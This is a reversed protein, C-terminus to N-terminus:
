SLTFRAVSDRTYPALDVPQGRFLLAVGKANGVILTFPADGDVQQDSGAANLRQLLVRGDASRVEVWSAENFHFVLPQSPAAAAPSLAAVESAGPDPTTATAVPGVANTASASPPVEAGGGAVRRSTDLMRGVTAISRDFSDTGSWAILAAVLAFAFAGYVLAAGGRRDDAPGSRRPLTVNTVGQPALIAQPHASGSQSADVRAVLSAADIQLARAVNRLFGRLYPGAPLEAWREQEIAEIRSAPLKVMHAIETQSLDLELRRARLM